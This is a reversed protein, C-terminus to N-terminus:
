VREKELNELNELEVDVVDFIDEVGLKSSLQRRKLHSDFEKKKYLYIAREAVRNILGIDATSILKEFDYNDLNLIDQIYDTDTNEIGNYIETLGLYEKLDEPTFDDDEFDIITIAHSEFLRRNTNVLTTLLDLEISDKAGLGKLSMKYGTKPCQYFVENATSLNMIDVELSKRKKLDQRLERLSRTNKAM